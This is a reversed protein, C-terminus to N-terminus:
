DKCFYSLERNCSVGIPQNPHYDFHTEAQTNLCIVTEEETDLRDHTEIQFHPVSLITTKKSTNELDTTDLILFGIFVDKWTM